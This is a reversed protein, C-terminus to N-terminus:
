VVEGVDEGLNVLMSERVERGAVPTVSGSGVSSGAMSGWDFSITNWGRKPPVTAIIEELDLALLMCYRDLDLDNPGEGWPNEIELGVEALAFIMYAM